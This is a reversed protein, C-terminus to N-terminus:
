GRMDKGGDVTLTMGTVFQALDSLLYVTAGAVDEPRGIRGLPFGAIVRDRGIADVPGRSMDSETWAPAVCNVRIRDGGLEKAMSRMFMIQGGKSTAYASYVDSGRQGATSTYIVISGGRGQKRFHPVAAKVALFTGTLNIAMTRNWFELTMEEIPSGEFIGASVVLGDLGGLARVAAKIARGIAAEEAVEARVVFAKRGLAAIEKAVSRAAAAETRYSIAVDAGAKAAMLAAARGLGRSGGAVFIKRGTLKIMAKSM